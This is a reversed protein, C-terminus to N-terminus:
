YKLSSPTRFPSSKEMGMEKPCQEVEVKQGIKDINTIASTHSFTPVQKM